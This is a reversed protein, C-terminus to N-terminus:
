NYIFPLSFVGDMCAHLGQCGVMTVNMFNTFLSAKGGIRIWDTDLGFYSFFLLSFFLSRWSHLFSVNAYGVRLYNEM